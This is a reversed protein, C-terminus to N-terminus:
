LFSSRAMTGSGCFRNLKGRMKAKQALWVSNGESLL